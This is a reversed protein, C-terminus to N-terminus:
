KLRAARIGYVKKVSELQGVEEHWRLFNKYKQLEAELPSEGLLHPPNFLVFDWAYFSIDAITLKNGVLYKQNALVGDLVSIM